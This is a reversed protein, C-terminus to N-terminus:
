PRNPSSPQYSSPTASTLKQVPAFSLAITGMWGPMRRHSRRCSLSPVRARNAVVTRTLRQPARVELDADDPHASRSTRAGFVKNTPRGPEALYHAGMRVEHSRM